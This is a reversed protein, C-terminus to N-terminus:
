EFESPNLDLLVKGSEVGDKILNYVSATNAKVKSVDEDTFKLSEKLFSIFELSSMKNHLIELKTYTELSYHRIKKLANDDLTRNRFKIGCDNDKLLLRKVLKAGKTKMLAVQEPMEKKLKQETLVGNEFYYYYQFANANGYRDFQSLIADIILMDTFDKLAFISGINAFNKSFQKTITGRKKTQKYFNTKLYGSTGRGFMKSYSLEGKPNDLLAGFSKDKSETVMKSSKNRLQSNLTVWNKPLWGSYTKTLEIGQESKKIHEELDMTRLVAVPVNGINLLRGIHYYGLMSPVYGCSTSVKYKALKKAKLKVKKSCENQLFSEREVGEKLVFVELAPSTNKVKPCVALKSKVGKYKFLNQNSHFNMKCLKQQKKLDNKSYEIGQAAGTISAVTCTETIGSPSIFESGMLPASVLVSLLILNKM